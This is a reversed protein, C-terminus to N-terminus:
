FQENHDSERDCVTWCSIEGGVYRWQFTYETCFHPGNNHPLPINRTALIISNRKLIYFLAHRDDLYKHPFKSYVHVLTIAFMSPCATSSCKCKCHSFLKILIQYYISLYWFFILYDERRSTKHSYNVMLLMWYTILRWSQYKLLRAQLNTKNTAHIHSSLLYCIIAILSSFMVVGAMTLRGMSKFSFYGIAGIM